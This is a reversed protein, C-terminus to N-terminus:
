ESPKNDTTNEAKDAAAADNTTDNGNLLAKNKNCFEEYEKEVYPWYVEHNYNWKLDGKCGVERTEAPVYDEINIWTGDSSESKKPPASTNVFAVKNKTVPDIFPSVLRFFLVFLTPPDFVIAKGLREPYHSGFINLFERATSIAVSNSKSWQSADIMLVIRDANKPMHRIVLEATYVVWKIQQVPDNTNQRHNYMYILPRGFKDYGNFYLKGTKSELEVEDPTIAHPRYTRRWELSKRLGKKTKEVDGKNARLYRMLCDDDLWEEPDFRPKGDSPEEPLDKVLEPIAERIKALKEKDADTLEPTKIVEYNEPPTYVPVSSFKEKDSWEPADDNTKPKESTSSRGFISFM